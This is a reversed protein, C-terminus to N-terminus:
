CAGRCTVECAQVGGRRAWTLTRNAAAAAVLALAVIVDLIAFGGDEARDTQRVSIGLFLIILMAELEEVREQECLPVHPLEGGIRHKLVNVDAM